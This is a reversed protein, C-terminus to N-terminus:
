RWNDTFSMQQILPNNPDDGSLTRGGSVSLNGSVPLARRLDVVMSGSGTMTYTDITLTETSGPIAFVSNIPSEDISFDIHLRDGDRIRLTATITQKVQTGSDVIRQARWQAGIGIPTAPLTLSRQLSGVLTSEVAQRAADDAKAAPVIRLSIPAAGAGMTLGAYSDATAKLSAALDRDPSTSTGLTLEVDNSGTDTGGDTCSARATLPMTVATAQSQPGDPGASSNLASVASLVVQQASTRDPQYTVPSRPETGPELVTVDAPPVPLTASGSMGSTSETACGAPASASKHDSGCGALVTAVSM